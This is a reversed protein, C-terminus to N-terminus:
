FSVGICDLSHRHVLFGLFIHSKQIPSFGFVFRCPHIQHISVSSVQEKCSTIILSKHSLMHPPYHTNSPTVHYYYHISIAHGSRRLLCLPPSSLQHQRHDRRSEDSIGICSSAVRHINVVECVQAVYNDVMFHYFQL